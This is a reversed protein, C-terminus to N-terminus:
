WGVKFTQYILSYSQLQVGSKKNTESLLRFLGVGRLSLASTDPAAPGRYAEPPPKWVNYCHFTPRPGGRTYEWSM